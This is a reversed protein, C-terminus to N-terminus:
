RSTLATHARNILFEDSIRFDCTSFVFGFASRPYEEAEGSPTVIRNKDRNKVTRKRRSRRAVASTLVSEADLPGGGTTTWTGLYKVCRARKRGGLIKALNDCTSSNRAILQTRWQVVRACNEFSHADRQAALNILEKRRPINKVAQREGRLGTTFSVYAYSCAIFIKCSLCSM